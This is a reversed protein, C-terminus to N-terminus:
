EDSNPSRRAAAGGPGKAKHDLLLVDGRVLLLMLMLWCCGTGVEGSREYVTPDEEYMIIRARRSRESWGVERTRAAEVAVWGRMENRPPPLIHSTLKLWMCPTFVVCLARACEDVVREGGVRVCMVMVCRVLM